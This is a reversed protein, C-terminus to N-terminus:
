LPWEIGVNRHVAILGEELPWNGQTDMWHNTTVAIAAFSCLVSDLADASKELKEKNLGLRIRKSLSDIIELRNSLAEPSDGNYSFHPLGWERLQAAPFAEVLLGREPFRHWPWIPCASEYLLTLCAATMAAGGRPGAWLSSRVNVGRSKWYQETERLPKNSGLSRGQVVQCVFDHATPFPWAKPRDIKGALELLERHGGLPLYDLPVSFPADVAAADFERRSLLTKLREFPAGKGPLDQVPEVSNLVLEKDQVRGDAVWINSLRLGARWM